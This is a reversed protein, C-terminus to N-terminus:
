YSFIERNAREDKAADSEQTLLRARGRGVLRSKAPVVVMKKRPVEVAAGNTMQRARILVRFVEVVKGVIWKPRAQPDESLFQRTASLGFVDDRPQRQDSIFIAITVADRVFNFEQEAVIGSIGRVFGVFLLKGLHATAALFKRFERLGISPLKKLRRLPRHRREHFILLPGSIWDILKDCRLM